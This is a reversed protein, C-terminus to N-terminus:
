CMFWLYFLIFRIVYIFITNALGEYMLVKLVQYDLNALNRTEGISELCFSTALLSRPICHLHM